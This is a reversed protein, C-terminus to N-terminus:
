NLVKSCDVSGNISNQNQDRIIRLMVETLWHSESHKNLREMLKKLTLKTSGRKIPNPNYYSTLNIIKNKLVYGVLETFNNKFIELNEELNGIMQYDNGTTTTDVWKNINDDWEMRIKNLLVVDAFDYLTQLKKIIFQTDETCITNCLSSNDSQGEIYGANEQEQEQWTM